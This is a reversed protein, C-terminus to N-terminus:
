HLITYSLFTSYTAKPGSEKLNTLNSGRWYVDYSSHYNDAYFSLIIQFIVPVIKPSNLATNHVMFVQFINTKSWIAEFRQLEDLSVSVTRPTTKNMDDGGDETKLSFPMDTQGVERDM